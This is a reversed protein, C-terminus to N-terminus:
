LQINLLKGEKQRDYARQIHKVLENDCGEHGSAEVNVMM